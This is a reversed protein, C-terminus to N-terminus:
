SSLMRQARTCYELLSMQTHCQAHADVLTGPKVFEMKEQRNTLNKNRIEKM